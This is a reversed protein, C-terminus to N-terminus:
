EIGAYRVRLVFQRNATWHHKVSCRTWIEHDSQKIATASHYIMVTRVKLVTAEPSRVCDTFSRDLCSTPNCSSTQQGCDYAKANQRLVTVRRHIVVPPTVQIQFLANYVMGSVNFIAICDDCCVQVTVLCLLVSTATLWLYVQLSFSLLCLLVFSLNWKNWRVLM